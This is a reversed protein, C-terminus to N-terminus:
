VIKLHRNGPMAALNLPAISYIVDALQERIQVSSYTLSTNTAIAM